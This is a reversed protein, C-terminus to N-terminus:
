ERIEFDEASLKGEELRVKEKRSEIKVWIAIISGTIALCIAALFWM